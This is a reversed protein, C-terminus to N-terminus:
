EYTANVQIVTATNEVLEPVENKFRQEKMRSSPGSVSVAGLLEDDNTKIPAAVCRIGEAREEGDFAIGRDRVEELEAFLEERKTVTNPTEEPLGHNTLIEEVRQDPLNALITKGLASTHLYQISGIKTDLSLAQEGKSIYLYVGLGNEEIMLNAIESTKDALKDIEPKGVNYLTMRNRAEIGFELFRMGLRYQGGEKVVFGNEELTSLHHHVSGKNLDLKESIETIGQWKSNRLSELIAFSKNLSKIPNKAKRSM